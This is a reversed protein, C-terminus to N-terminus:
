AACADDDCCREGHSAERGENIALAAIVLAAV